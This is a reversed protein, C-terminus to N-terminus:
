SIIIYHLEGLGPTGERGSRHHFTCERIAGCRDPHEIHGHQTTYNRANLVRQVMSQDKHRELSYDSLCNYLTM